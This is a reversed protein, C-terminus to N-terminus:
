DSYIIFVENNNIKYDLLENLIIADDNYTIYYNKYKILVILDKYDGKYENYLDIKTKM